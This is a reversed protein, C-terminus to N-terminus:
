NVQIRGSPYVKIKATISSRPSAITIQAYSGSFPAGGSYIDAGSNPRTFTISLDSLSSSSGSGDVSDLESILNGKTIIIKDLCEDGAISADSCFAGSADDYMKNPAPTLPTLDAFYIFSQDDSTKNFYVGYSPKWSAGATNLESSGPLRGFVASKQAEVLKLAIDNALTKLDVKAQFDGYNFLVISSMIAFISLVVILEVYTM